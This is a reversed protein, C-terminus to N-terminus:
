KKLFEVISSVYVEELDSQGKKILWNGNSKEFYFPSKEITTTGFYLFQFEILHFKLGDFGIDLSIHPVKFYEKISLAFDLMGEPLEKRFFFNGSGSARFDNVRNGRYLVFCKTGYVLVKWDNELGTILNQVIIKSRHFSEKRYYSRYKVKRLLEKIDHLIDFSRTIKRANSILENVSDAKMVGKSMAGCAPKLVVPYTFKEAQTILEELTGIAKSKISNIELMTSRERLLEMAVKNNHAKLYAYSPLLNFGKQELNYIVDEIFSKYLSNNDESSTYLILTEDKNISDEQIDTFSSVTVYLSYTAFRSVLKDLDFGGRYLKSKQKSGFFGKYDTLILIKRYM